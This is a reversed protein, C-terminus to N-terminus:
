GKMAVVVSVVWALICIRSVNCLWYGGASCQCWARQGITRPLVLQHALVCTWGHRTGVGKGKAWVAEARANGPQQRAGQESGRSPGALGLLWAEVEVRLRPPVEHLAEQAGGIPPGQAVLCRLAALPTGREMAAALGREGLPIGLRVLCELTTRDGTEAANAYMSAPVLGSHSECM